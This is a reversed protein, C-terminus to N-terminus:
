PSRTRAPSTDPATRPTYPSQPSFPTSLPVFAPHAPFLFFFSGGPRHLTRRSKTHPAPHPTHKPIPPPANPSPARPPRPPTPLRSPRQRPFSFLKKRAPLPPPVQPCSFVAPAPPARRSPIHPTFPTLRPAPTFFPARVRPRRPSVAAQPPTPHLPDGGAQPPTPTCPPAFFPPCAKHGGCVTLFGKPSARLAAARRIFDSDLSM